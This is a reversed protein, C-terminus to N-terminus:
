FGRFDVRKGDIERQKNRRMRRSRRTKSKPIGLESTLALTSALRESDVAKPHL